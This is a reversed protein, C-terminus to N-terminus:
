TKEFTLHLLWLINFEPWAHREVVLTANKTRAANAETLFNGLVVHEAKDIAATVGHQSRMRALPQFVIIREIRDIKTWDPREGGGIESELHTNPEQFFGFADAGAARGTAVRNDAGAFVDNIPLSRA